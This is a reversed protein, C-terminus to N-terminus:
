IVKTKKAEPEKQSDDVDVDEEMDAYFLSCNDTVFKLKGVKM